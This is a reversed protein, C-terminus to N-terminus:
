YSGARWGSHGKGTKDACLLLAWFVM